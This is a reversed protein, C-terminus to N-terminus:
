LDPRRAEPAVCTTRDRLVPSVQSSGDLLKSEMVGLNRWRDPGRLRSRHASKLILTMGDGAVTTSM